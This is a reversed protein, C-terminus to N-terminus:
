KRCDLIRPSYRLRLGRKAKSLYYYITPMPDRWNFNLQCKTRLFDKFWAYRSLHGVKVHCYDTSLDMMNTDRITYSYPRGDVYMRLLNAGASTAAYALGDHRFNVEMFYKENDKQLFEVSFPGQYGIAEIMREIPRTDIGLKNASMFVGYSCPSYITPYHRLKKIGGPIIVDTDTAVGIMNIEFDKEIYEQVIFTSCTSDIALAREADERSYCIHIDSKEGGNSNAPKMLIPYNLNNPFTDRVKYIISKPVTIGFQSALECQTAKDFLNGLSSGRMPTKYIKSLWLENEDLWKAARDNSCILFSGGYNTAIEKLAIGCEYISKLRIAKYLYRSKCVSLRDNGVLLLIVKVGGQGLSRILGLTNNFSDGIIIVSKHNM